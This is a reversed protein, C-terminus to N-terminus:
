HDNRPELRKGLRQILELRRGLQRRQHGVIEFEQALLMCGLQWGGLKLDFVQLLEGLTRWHGGLGFAHQVRRSGFFSPRRLLSLSLFQLVHRILDQVDFTLDQPHLDLLQLEHLM